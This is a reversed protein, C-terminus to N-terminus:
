LPRAQLQRAGSEEAFKRAIEADEAAKKYATCVRTDNDLM